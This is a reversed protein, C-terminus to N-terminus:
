AHIKGLYSELVEPNNQIAKPSGIAIEKGRDMAIITECLSMVFPMNHEVIFITKEEKQFDYIMKTIEKILTPNIGATPEDMLILSPSNAKIRLIELLKKQGYSLEYGKLNAKEELGVTALLKLAKKKLNSQHNKFRTFIKLFNEKNEHYAIVINELATLEPFIRISQYSRGLGLVARKYPTFNTINQDQFYINGDDSDLLGSIINFLTTKGAGNPGILGTISNKKISFSCKNLAKLGSFSKSIQQIELIDQM